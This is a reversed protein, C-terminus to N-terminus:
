AIRDLKMTMDGVMGINPPFAGAASPPANEFKMTMNLKLLYVMAVVDGDEPLVRATLDGDAVGNMVMRIKGFEPPLGAPAQQGVAGLLKDFGVGFDVPTKTNVKVRAVRGYTTDLFGLHRGSTTVRVPPNGFPQKVSDSTRWTDGEEIADAPYVPFLSSSGISAKGEADEIGVLETPDFGPLAGGTVSIIKGSKSITMRITEDDIAAGSPDAPTTKVDSVTLDFVVSGDDRVEVVKVGMKGTAAATIAGVSPIGKPTFTMRMSMSYDRSHGATLSYAYVTASSQFLIGLVGAVVVAVSVAVAGWHALGSARRAVPTAAKMEM